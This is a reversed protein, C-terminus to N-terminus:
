IELFQSEISDVDLNNAPTAPNSGVYGTKSVPTPPKSSRQTVM